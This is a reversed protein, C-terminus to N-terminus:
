PPIRKQGEDFVRPLARKGIFFRPVHRIFLVSSLNEKVSYNPEHSGNVTAKDRGFDCSPGRGLALPRVNRLPNIVGKWGRRRFETM